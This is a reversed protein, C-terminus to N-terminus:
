WLIIYHLSGWPLLQCNMASSSSEPDMTATPPPFWGYPFLPNNQTLVIYQPEGENSKRMPLNIMASSKRTSISTIHTNM